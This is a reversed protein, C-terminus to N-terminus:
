LIIVRSVSDPCKLYPSSNLIGATLDESQNEQPMKWFLWKSTLGVFINTDEVEIAKYIITAQYGTGEQEGM